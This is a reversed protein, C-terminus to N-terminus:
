RVLLQAIAGWLRVHRIHQVEFDQATRRAQAADRRPSPNIADRTGFAGSAETAWYQAAVDARLALERQMAHHPHPYLTVLRAKPWSPIFYYTTRREWGNDLVLEIIVNTLTVDGNNRVSTGILPSFATREDSWLASASLRSASDRPGGAARALPLIRERWVVAAHDAIESDFQKMLWTFQAPAPLGNDQPRVAVADYIEGPRTHKRIGALVDNMRALTEPSIDVEDLEDQRQSEELALWRVALDGLVSAGYRLSAEPSNGWRQHAEAVKMRAESIRRADRALARLPEAASKVHADLRLGALQRARDYGKDKLILGGGSIRLERFPLNLRGSVPLTLGPRLGQPRFDFSLQSAIDRWAEELSAGVPQSLRDLDPFDSDDFAESQAPPRDQAAAPPALAWGACLLAVIWRKLKSRPTAGCLRRADSDVFTSQNLTRTFM